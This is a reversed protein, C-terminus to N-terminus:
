TAVLVPCGARRLARRVTDPDGRLSTSPLVLLGCGAPPPELPLGNSDIRAERVSARLGSEELVRAARDGTGRPVLVTLPQELPAAIAGAAEAVEAAEEPSAAVAYVEREIESKRPLVLVPTAPDALLARVTSGPGRGPFWGRVGLILLDAEGAATRLEAAVRGRATRFSWRVERRDAERALARRARRALAEMQRELRAREVARAEASLADIETAGALGALRLLAIDHVFIGVLEAGTPAALRVAARLGARSHSSADLALLIRRPPRM